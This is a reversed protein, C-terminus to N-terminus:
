QGLYASRILRALNIVAGKGMSDGDNCLVVIGINKGPIMEVHGSFLASEGTHLIVREDNITINESGLSYDPLGFYIIELTSQSLKSKKGRLGKLQDQLFKAYDGVNLNMGSVALTAPYSKVWTDPSEPTLGGYKAWHGWPETPSITNPWGFKASIGFPKNLYTEVLTEWSLGTAKELMAAAITYGAISEVMQKERQASLGPRQLLWVAFQKRQIQPDTHFSPVKAYDEVTLYPAIGARNSLLTKLDLNAYQPLIKSKSEPFLSVFTTTWKIKGGEVIKGALWSTIGFTNTGLQFRDTIRASDRTRYKRYGSVGMDVISSDTFVAYAIAPIGRVRRVSDAIRLYSQAHSIFVILLCGLTFLKRM